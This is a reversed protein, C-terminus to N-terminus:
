IYNKYASRIDTENTSYEGGVTVEILDDLYYKLVLVYTTCIVFNRM